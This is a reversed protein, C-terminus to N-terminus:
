SYFQCISVEKLEEDLDEFDVAIGYDDLAAEILERDDEEDLEMADADHRLLNDENPLSDLSGAALPIQLQDLKCKRLLAFKAASNKQLDAELASIDKQRADIDKNRRTVEGKADTVKRNKLELQDRSEGLTERLADLEDSVTGMTDEIDSKEHQYQQLEHELHQCRKEMTTLRAELDKFRSSTWRSTSKLREKQVEFSKREEELKSQIDKHEAEYARIDALGLRACFTAFIKDEVQAIASQFENVTDQTAQLESSKDSLKPEWDALQRQANDREKKKSQYNKELHALERRASALQPELAQLDSRLAEEAPRDPKPLNEMEEKYRAAVKKLAEIDTDEFRRKGGRQEPGRGGTMLGAKHIIFGELTVAKVPTRKEYCIHKAIDLNDCVVSSGCAYALAREYSADFDITDITLRAGSVGKVASNVANVKINDLPIFTMPPFRQDKLYQVCELGTRETDVVVSEFDRGLAVIVAEDFKKQKPKCLDGVRGKVGPYVRKLTSVMEKMKAERDNQRQGDDAERLQRAINELKEELETRKNHTRQRISGIQGLEKKKAEVDYSLSQITGEINSRRSGLADLESSLKTLDATVTDVKGKLSDVTAEDTKRQRLLNDLKVQNASTKSLLQSRLMNYEKRDSPSLEIGQNQMRKAYEDEKLKEAKEVMQLKKRDDNIAKLQEDREKRTTDLRQRLINLDRTSQEVKENIPVLSNEMEEIHREKAKIGKDVKHVERAASSQEKRASDLKKEFVELNRRYEQLNAEHEEIKTTSEDMSRQLHFLRWLAHHVIAMDREETKRQFSEAEKKQEQYQKIESNIGRRRHLQFSQNEAAAEAESQLKEYEAKYELSGSIQEILRTLDQPSQAAIAEVDGQFVLFNRAKILINETELAENYQLASVIRDNIRYESSGQSTIARKWRQEDGADDEYVAMVWATKPDHRSSKNDNAQGNAPETALTEASGDDNIKSTKLVRGRYVLDKLHTSRLHSSKIGLVFSIADM